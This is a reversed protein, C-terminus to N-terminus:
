TPRAADRARWFALVRAATTPSLREFNIRAEEVDPASPMKGPGLRLAILSRVTAWELGISKGLILIPDYRDGLVLQDVAALRVGSMVSLAAVAQEYQHERALRLLAAENLGGARHLALIERQAANFDRQVLQAKPAGSIELMAKNIAAKREPRAAEFLRRRVMDVSTALLEKLQGSAIDDRQGVAQALMGDDAARKILGSYGASSFRAGSNQAVTRVVDRDGRRVIVDTVTVPLIKRTSLAALHAQGRMRAVEILTAEDIQTSRSLVPGAVRIEEERALHRMLGPPANRLDALQGALAARADLESAPVLGTLVDDFIAVHGAGFHAAGQLFLASIREIAAARAEPSGNKVIDDLEPILSFAAAAM